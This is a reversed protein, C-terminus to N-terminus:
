VSRESRYRRQWEDQETDHSKQILARQLARDVRRSRGGPGLDPRLIEALPLLVERPEAVLEEYLVEHVSLGLGTLTADLHAEGRRLIDEHHAVAGADYALSVPALAEGAELGPSGSPSPGTHRSRHYVGTLSSRYRSVAQAVLDKRRLRVCVPALDLLPALASRCVAFDSGAFLDPFYDWILKSGGHRGSRVLAAAERIWNSLVEGGDAARLAYEFHEPRLHEPLPGCQNIGFLLETLWTSGSRSTTFILLPTPKHGGGLAARGLALAQRRRFTWEQM